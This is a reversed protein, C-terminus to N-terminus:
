YYIRYGNETLTINDGAVITVTDDDTGSSILKLDVDNGNDATILDYTTNTDSDTLSITDGTQNVTFTGKLSGGQNITITGNGPITDSDTLSITTNETQNVTFTGKEVGGQNITITGNGPTTITDTDQASITFGTADSEIKVNAGATITFIDDTNSDSNKEYYLLELEQVSIM